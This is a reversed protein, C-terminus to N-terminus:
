VFDIEYYIWDVSCENKAWQAAAESVLNHTRARWDMKKQTKPLFRNVFLGNLILEYIGIIWSQRHHVNYVLTCGVYRRMNKFTSDHMKQYFQDLRNQFDNELEMITKLMAEATEEASQVFLFNMFLNFHNLHGFDAFIRYRYSKSGCFCPCLSLM